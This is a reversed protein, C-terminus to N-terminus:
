GRAAAAAAEDLHDDGWFLRDGIAITPIGNVGREFAEATRKKLREKIEPQGTATITEDPDLGADAAAARVTEEEALSRSEVFLKRFAAKSFERVLGQEEAYLAARLPLLSWGEFPWTPPPALPPLGRDAAQATATALIGNRDRGLVEELRGRQQLVMPYAFPRWEADPILDDIRECALYAFPSTYDFYLAPRDSM